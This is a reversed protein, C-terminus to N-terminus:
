TKKCALLGRLPTTTGTYMIHAMHGNFPQFFFSYRDIWNLLYVILIIPMIIVDVKRVLNKEVKREEETLGHGVHNSKNEVVELKQINRDTYKPDRM